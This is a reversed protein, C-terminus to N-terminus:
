RAVVNAPSPRFKVFLLLRHGMKLSRFVRAHIQDDDYHSKCNGQEESQNRWQLRVLNIAAQMSFYANETRLLCTHIYKFSHPIKILSGLHLIESSYFQALTSPIHAYSIYKPLHVHILCTFSHVANIYRLIFIKLTKKALFCDSRSEGLPLPKPVWVEGVEILM